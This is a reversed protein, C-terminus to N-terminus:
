VERLIRAGMYWGGGSGRLGVVAALDQEAHHPRQRHRPRLGSGICPRQRQGPLLGSGTHPTPTAAQAHPPPRQRHVPLLHWDSDTYPSPGSTCLWRGGGHV